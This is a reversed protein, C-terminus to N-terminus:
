RFAVEIGGERLHFGRDHRRARFIQQIRGSLTRLLRGAPSGAAATAALLSRKEMLLSALRTRHGTPRKKEAPTDLGNLEVCFGSSRPFSPKGPLPFEVEM